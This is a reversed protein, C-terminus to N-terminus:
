YGSYFSKLFYWVFIIFIVIDGIALIFAKFRERPRKFTVPSNLRNIKPSEFNLIQYGRGIEEKTKDIIPM